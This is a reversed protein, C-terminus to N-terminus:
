RLGDPQVQVRWTGMRWSTGVEDVEFRMRIQRGRARLNLKEATDLITFPGKTIDSSSPYRRTYVTLKSSKGSTITNDPIVKDMFIM